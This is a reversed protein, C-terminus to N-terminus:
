VLMSLDKVHSHDYGEVKTTQQIQLYLLGGVQAEHGTQSEHKKIEWVQENSRM